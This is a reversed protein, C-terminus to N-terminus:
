PTSATGQAADLALNLQLTNVRGVGAIRSDPEETLASVLRELTEVQDAPLLRAEVIRPIQQRAEPASVYPPPPSDTANEGHFYRPGTFKQALLERAAQIDDPPEFGKWPLNERSDHLAIALLFVLCGLLSMWFLPREAENLWRTDSLAKM